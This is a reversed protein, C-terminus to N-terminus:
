NKLSAGSKMDLRKFSFYSFTFFMGDKGPDSNKCCTTKSGVDGKVDM